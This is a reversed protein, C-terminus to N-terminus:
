AWQPMNCALSRAKGLDQLALQVAVPLPTHPEPGILAALKDGSLAHPTKWLYRMECLERWMPVLMGGAKMLRWPMSAIKLKGAPPLWGNDWAVDALQEAWESGTLSHGKFHFIEFPAFRQPAELLKDAVRVFAGAMDPVYAWATRVDLAGPYTMKGSTINKALAMDFWSGTGSGFFDGARIVVSRVGGPAAADQMRQEMAIRIKGKRTDALQPTDEALVRPMGAGFNYVAGPLMLLAQLQRAVRLSADLLTMAWTEWETYLPNLAHVVVEAGQAAQALAFTDDVALPLWQVGACDPTKAGPRIQAVVRWGAAAFARAAALGFRGRAGLILVTKPQQIPM